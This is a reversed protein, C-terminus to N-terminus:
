TTPAPVTENAIFGTAKHSGDCFPKKQSQGCRCLAINLQTSTDYKNGLHDTLSVPGSILIPGNERIKIVVDDSMM